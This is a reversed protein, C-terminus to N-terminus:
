FVVGIGASLENQRIWGSKLPFDFPKPTLYQRADLRLAWIGAVRVKLGGGYNVGFKLNGGYFANSGPPVYNAMQVGGAAFPRFRNGEHNAYLLMDYGFHHISMSDEVVPTLQNYRIHTQNYTYFLEHGILRDGNFAVRFGFRHGNTLEVDDKNGAIPTLSGLGGAAMLSEGGTFWTEFYQGWAAPAASALLCLLVLRKM